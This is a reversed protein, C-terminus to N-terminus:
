YIFFNSLYNKAIEVLGYNIYFGGSPLLAFFLRSVNVDNAGACFGGQSGGLLVAL